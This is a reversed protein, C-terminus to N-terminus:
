RCGSLPPTAGARESCGRTWGFLRSPPVLIAIAAFAGLWPTAAAFWWARDITLHDVSKLAAAPLAVNIVWAGLVKNANEPLRGSRRLLVGLALCAIILVVQEM